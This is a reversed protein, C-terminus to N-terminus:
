ARVWRAASGGEAGGKAGPVQTLLGKAVERELQRRAKEVDAKTPAKKEFMVVALEKASLGQDGAAAVLAVTDDKAQAHMTGAREDHMLVLPGVEAAPQKLHRMGVIPDGTEGTLMVVSGAGSTLWTSGYVDALGSPAAGNSTRKVTHHLEVLEVGEALLMQRARNYGAGVADESLGVAADKISDIYVVSAGAQKALDVLLRPNAAVDEPPPGQWVMLREALVKRRAKSFQRHLSRQIQRPRDMALYLIKGSVPAVPLNLVEEPIGTALQARLLMGALTTKGLGPLGCIMLSEGEAWLLRDGQGWLAPIEDPVDLVFSAGDTLRSGDQRRARELMEGTQEWLARMVVIPDANVDKSAKRLIEQSENLVYRKQLAGILWDAAEEVGHELNRTVPPFEHELMDWTPVRKSDTWYECMWEFAARNLPEEFVEPALEVQIVEAMGEATMMASLLKTEYAASM